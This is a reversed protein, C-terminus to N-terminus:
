CHKSHVSNRVWSLNSNTVVPPMLSKSVQLINSTERKTSGCQATKREHTPRSTGMFVQSLPLQEMQSQEIQKRVRRLSTKLDRSQSFSSQLNIDVQGGAMSTSGIIM